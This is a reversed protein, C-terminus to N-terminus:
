GQHRRRFPVHMEFSFEIDNAFNDLALGSAMDPDLLDTFYPATQDALLMGKYVITNCSLSPMYFYMKETLDSARIAREVVNYYLCM